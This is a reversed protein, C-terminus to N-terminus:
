KHRKKKRSIFFRMITERRLFHPATKARSHAYRLILAM